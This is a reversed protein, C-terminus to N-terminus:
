SKEEAAVKANNTAWRLARSIARTEAMRIFHPKILANTIGEADGHATYGSKNLEKDQVYVSAKFVAKQTEYDVSLMETQISFNGKFKTHADDLLSEFNTADDFKDKKEESVEVVDSTVEIDKIINAETKLKVAYGKKLRTLMKELKEKDDHLNYFAGKIKLGINFKGSDKPFETPADPLWQITGIIEM